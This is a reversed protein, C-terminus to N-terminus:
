FPFGFLMTMGHRVPYKDEPFGPLANKISERLIGYQSPIISKALEYDIPLVVLTANITGTTLNPFTQAIPNPLSNNTNLANALFQELTTANIGAILQTTNVISPAGSLTNIEQIISPSFPPEIAHKPTNRSQRYSCTVRVVFYLLIALLSARSHMM